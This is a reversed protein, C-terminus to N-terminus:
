FRYVLGLSPEAMHGKTGTFFSIAGSTNTVNFDPNSYLFGRYQVRLSFWHTHPVNYDVGLGYLFAPRSQKDAYLDTPINNPIGNIPALVVFTNQPNFRLLGAGAMVFTQFRGKTYPSFMYAGSYETIRTGVRYDFSSQFIQSDRDQGYNFVVSHKPKIKFRFSAFYGAGDTASQTIGNGTAQKQFVGNFNASADFHGDQAVALASLLGIVALIGARKGM